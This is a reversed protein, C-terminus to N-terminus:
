FTTNPWEYKKVAYIVAALAAIAVQQWNVTWKWSGNEIAAVLGIMVPQSVFAFVWTWMGRILAAKM